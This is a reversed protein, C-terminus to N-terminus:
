VHARGIEYNFNTTNRVASINDINVVHLATLTTDSYDNTDLTPPDHTSVYLSVFGGAIDGNDGAAEQLAVLVNNSASPVSLSYYIWQNVAVSDSTTQGNSLAKISVDCGPGAWGSSCVCVSSGKKCSGNAGPPCNCTSTETLSLQYGCQGFGFVGIYWTYNGPNNITATFNQAKSISFADFNFRTPVAGKRIYLDCDEEPKDQVVNISVANTSLYQFKYVNWDNQAVYGGVAPGNVQLSNQATQCKLGTYGTNCVCTGSSCTGHRSCFSPSCDPATTSESWAASLTFTAAQFGFIGIYYVASDPNPINVITVPATTINFADWSVTSPLANKKIYVDADGSLQTVTIQLYAAPSTLNAIFYQWKWRDVSYTATTVGNSLSNSPKSCDAGTWGDNCTCVGNSGCTGHSNCDSPCATTVNVQITYHCSWLGWSYIGIYWNGFPAHSISIRSDQGANSNSYLYTNRTPFSNRSVYVDCDGLNRTEHVLISLDSVSPVAIHFYDWDGHDLTFENSEAGATLEHLAYSCDVGARGADCQCVGNVCTGKKSCNSPCGGVAAEVSGVLELVFFSVLLVLGLTALCKKTDM